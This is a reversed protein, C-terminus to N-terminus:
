NKGDNHIKHCIRRCSTYKGYFEYHHSFNTVQMLVAHAGGSTRKDGTDTDAKSLWLGELSTGLGLGLPNIRDRSAESVCVLYRAM